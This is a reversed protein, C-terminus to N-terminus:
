EFIYSFCQIGFKILCGFTEKPFVILTIFEPPPGCEVTLKVGLLPLRLFTWFHFENHGQYHNTPCFQNHQCAKEGLMTAKDPFLSVKEKREFKKVGSERRSQRRAVIM